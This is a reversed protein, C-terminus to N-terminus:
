IVHGGGLISQGLIFAAASGFGSVVTEGSAMKFQVQGGLQRKKDLTLFAQASVVNDVQLAAAVLLGKLMALSPAGSFVQDKYAVGLTTNYYNEGQWTRLMCDVNQATAYPDDAVAINGLADLCLDWTSTDLLLSRSM